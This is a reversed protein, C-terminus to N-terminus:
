EIQTLCFWVIKLAPRKFEIFIAWQITHEVNEESQAQISFRNAVSVHFLIYVSLLFFSLSLSFLVLIGFTWKGNFCCHIQTHWIRHWQTTRKTTTITQWKNHCLIVVFFFSGTHLLHKHWKQIILKNLKSTAKSLHVLLDM